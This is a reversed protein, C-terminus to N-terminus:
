DYLTNDIYMIYLSGFFNYDNPGTPYTYLWRSTNFSVTASSTKNIGIDTLANFGGGVSRNIWGLSNACVAFSAPISGSTLSASPIPPSGSAASTILWGSIKLARYKSSFTVNSSSDFVNIGYGTDAQQDATFVYISLTLYGALQISSSSFYITWSSGSQTMSDVVVYDSDYNPKVFCLPMTQSTITLTCGQTNTGGSKTVTYKGLLRFSKYDTSFAIKGANSLVNIGYSM